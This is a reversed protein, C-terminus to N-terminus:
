KRRLHLPMYSVQRAKFRSKTDPKRTSDLMDAQKNLQMDNLVTASEAQVTQDRNDMHAVLDNMLEEDDQNM